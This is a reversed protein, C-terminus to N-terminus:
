QSRMGDVMRASVSSEEFTKKIMTNPQERLRANLKFTNLVGGKLVNPEASKDSNARRSGSLLASAMVEERTPMRRMMVKVALM